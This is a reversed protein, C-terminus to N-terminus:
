GEEYAIRCTVEVHAIPAPSITYGRCLKVKLVRVNIGWDTCEAPEIPVDVYWGVQPIIESESAWWIIPIHYYQGSLYRYAWDLKLPNPSPGLDEFPLNKISNESTHLIFICRM